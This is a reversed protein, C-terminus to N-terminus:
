TGVGLGIYNIKEDDVRVIRRTDIVLPHKMIQFDKRGLKKYEEWPTMVVACDSDKLVDQTTKHYSLKDGFVNRTNEIAKPDHVSIKCKQKLLLKILKISVSERIDDTNEKFSLGLIAIKKGQIRDLGTKILNMVAFVQDSNTSKIADLLVPNYGISNAFSILAQLDKPFCSGGYGPGAKLFQTGIRPDMGIVEAVKDVNTGPLRQCINALSNILSIRAALFSNAAYKIAEATVNNTQIIKHNKSYISAYFKALKKVAYSSSGGIVTVHPYITDKIASGEKLFEPNTLLDFHIGEKLGNKELIPKVVDLTTGPIVTSKIIISPRTRVSKLNKAIIQAVKKINSLDIKGKKDIPTGVTVFVFDRDLSEKTIEQSFILGNQMSRKLYLGLDQEYFYPVGKRLSKIKESNSDIGVVDAKTGLFVSLSLGVYGLGIVAVKTM